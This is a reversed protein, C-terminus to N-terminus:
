TDYLALWKAGVGEVYVRVRGYYAGLATTNIANGAGLTSEFRIFEESVDTQNLRLVPITADSTPQIIHLQALPVSLYIGVRLNSAIYMADQSAGAKFTATSSLSGAIRQGFTLNFTAGVGAGIAQFENAGSFLRLGTVPMRALGTNDVSFLEAAASTEVLFAKATQTSHGQVRLQVEDATGDILQGRTFTNAAGTGAAILTARGTAADADDILSRGFTTIASLGADYAQVTVGIAAAQLASDAKVGQAATAFLAANQLSTDALAGQAATAFLAANQLATDAKAGQAATAFLAANQLASSALAGQAATAFRSDLLALGMKKSQDDPDAESLDVAYFLLNAPNAPISALATLATTRLPEPM